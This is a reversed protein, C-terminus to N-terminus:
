AQQCALYNYLLGKEIRNITAICEAFPPEKRRLSQSLVGCLHSMEVAIIVVLVNILYLLNVIASIALLTKKM